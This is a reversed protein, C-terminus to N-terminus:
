LACASRKNSIYLVCISRMTVGPRPVRSLVVDVHGRGGWGGIHRCRMAMKDVFYGWLWHYGDCWLTESTDPLPLAVGASSGRTRFTTLKLSVAADGPPAEQWRRGHAMLSFGGSRGAVVTVGCPLQMLVGAGEYADAQDRRRYTRVVSHSQSQNPLVGHPGSM